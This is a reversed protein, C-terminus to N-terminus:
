THTSETDQPSTIQFSFIENGHLEVECSLQTQGTDQLINWYPDFDAVPLSLKLEFEGPHNERPLFLGIQNAAGAAFDIRAVTARRGPPGGDQQKIDLRLRITTVAHRGSGGAHVDDQFQRTGFAQYGTVVYQPKGGEDVRWVAAHPLPTLRIYALGHRDAVWQTTVDDVTALPSAPRVDSPDAVLCLVFKPDGDGRGPDHVLLRWPALHSM